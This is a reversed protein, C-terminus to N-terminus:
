KMRKLINYSQVVGAEGAKSLDIFAQRKNGMQFYCIGRNFYAEGFEPDLRLAESYCQMASTFDRMRYYINGKNFWAYVLRPNLELAADYDAIAAAIDRTAELRRLQSDGEEAERMASEAQRAYARAMLAVTFRPDKELAKDLARIAEGYNKVMSRAIGLALYDAPRAAGEAAIGEYYEIRSFIREWQSANEEGAGGVGSLHSYAPALNIKEEVYGGQNFDDLERFYNSTIKLSQRPAYFSLMYDPEPEVAMDRDQVRGKIRENYSLQATSSPSVTVLQNFREMVRIDTEGERDDGDRPDPEEELGKTNTTGSAITPRDLQFKGPNKVYKKILEEAHHVNTMAGRMDGLQHLCEAMAYYAPYFRPYKKAIADFGKLAEKYEGLELLMLARNYRAHFNDPEIKLVEDLDKVARSFDRVEYRLLARNFLAAANYPRLELSYNYDAMAGFYDDNNYRLYARNLYYDPEQPQLRIAEDMDAAAASWEKKHSLLEARMLYPNVGTPALLISADLDELARVTDGEVMRLRARATIGDDFRPYLRLLHRFTSDADSFRRLETEAVGKYFLFYKDDPNEQLGIKYDEVALSDKGLYQRAFGRVKYSETKYKNREIALSCDEEAGKYDELYLKALGRFFYPDSLYPKAKIAQNFYQISLMYDDMSLVNRGITVCQEANVQARSTEAFGGALVFIFLLAINPIFLSYSGPIMGKVFSIIYSLLKTPNM